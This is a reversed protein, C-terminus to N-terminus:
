KSQLAKELEGYADLTKHGTESELYKRIVRELEAIRRDRAALQRDRKIAWMRAEDREAIVNQLKKAIEETLTAYIGVNDLAEKRAHRMKALRRNRKGIFERMKGIEEQAEALQEELDGIRLTQDILSTEHNCLCCDNPWIRHLVQHQLPTTTKTAM